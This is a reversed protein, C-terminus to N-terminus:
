LQWVTLLSQLVPLQNIAELSVALGGTKQTWDKTMLMWNRPSCHMLLEHLAKASLFMVILLTLSYSTDDGTYHIM